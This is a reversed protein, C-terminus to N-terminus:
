KLLNFIFYTELSAEIKEADAIIVLM